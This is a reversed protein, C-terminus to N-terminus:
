HRSKRKPIYADYRNLHIQMDVLFQRFLARREDSTAATLADAGQKTLQKYEANHRERMEPDMAVTM